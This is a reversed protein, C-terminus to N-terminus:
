SFELRSEGQIFQAPPGQELLSLEGGSHARSRFFTIHEGAVPMAQTVENTVRNFLTLGRVQRQLQGVKDVQGTLQSLGRRQERVVNDDVFTNIKDEDLGLWRSVLSELGPREVFWYISLAAFGVVFSVVLIPWYVASVSSTFLRACALGLSQGSFFGGGFFLVGAVASTLSKATTLYHDNLDAKYIGRAEDLAAYRTALMTSMQLLVRQEEADGQICRISIVERLKDIQEVQELFADILQHKQEIDVGLNKSIAVLDFGCFVIVSLAAFVIGAMFIVVPSVAPFLGLISAIGDFGECIAVTTGVITLFRFLAENSQPDVSSGLEASEPIANFLDQLLAARLTELLFQTEKDLIITKSLWAVLELTNIETRSAVDSLWVLLSAKDDSDSEVSLLAERILPLLNQSRHSIPVSNVM